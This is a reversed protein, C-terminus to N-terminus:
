VEVCASSPDRVAPDDRSIRSVRWRWFDAVLQRQQGGPELPLDKRTTRPKQNFNTKTDSVNPRRLLAYQQYFHKSRYENFLLTSTQNTKRLRVHKNQEKRLACSTHIGIETCKRSRSVPKNIYSIRCFFSQIHNINQLEKDTYTAKLSYATLLQIATALNHDRYHQHSFKVSATQRTYM